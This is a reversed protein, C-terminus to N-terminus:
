STETPLIYKYDLIKFHFPFIILAWTHNLCDCNFNIFIIHINLSSVGKM